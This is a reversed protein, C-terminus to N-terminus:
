EIIHIKDPDLSMERVTKCAQRYDKKDIVNSLIFEAQRESNYNDIELKCESDKPM